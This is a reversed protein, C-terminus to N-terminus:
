IFACAVGLSGLGLESVLRCKDPQDARPHACLVHNAFLGAGLMFIGCGLGIPTLKQQATGIPEDPEKSVVAASTEGTSGDVDIVSACSVDTYADSALPHVIRVSGDPRSECLIALQDHGAAVIQPIVNEPTTAPDLGVTFSQPVADTAGAESSEEAGGCAPLAVSAVMGATWMRRGMRGRSLARDARARYRETDRNAFGAGRAERV